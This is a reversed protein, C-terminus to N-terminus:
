LPELFVTGAMLPKGAEEFVDDELPLSQPVDAQAADVEEVVNLTVMKDM